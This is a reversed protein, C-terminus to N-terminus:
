RSVSKRLWSDLKLAADAVTPGHYVIGWHSAGPLVVCQGGFHAAVRQNQDPTFGTELEGAFVIVPCTVSDAPVSIGRRRERRAVGSEMAGASNVLVLRAEDETLDPM